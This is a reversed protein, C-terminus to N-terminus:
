SQHINQLVTIGEKVNEVQAIVVMRVGKQEKIVCQRPHNGVYNLLSEFASSKYYLSKPNAVLQLNMRGGRLIIKEIGLEKGIRRLTVVNM